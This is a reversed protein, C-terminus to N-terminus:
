TPSTSRAAASAPRCTTPAPRGPSSATESTPAACCSRARPRRTRRRSRGSRSATPRRAATALALVLGLAGVIDVLVRIARVCQLRPPRAVGWAAPADRLRALWCRTVPARLRRRTTRSTRGCGASPRPSRSARASPTTPWRTAASGASRSTARRRSARLVPRQRERGPTTAFSETLGLGAREADLLAFCRGSRRTTPAPRTASRRASAASASARDARRADLAEGPRTGSAGRASTCGSPSRRPSGTPSRRSWSRTTTTASPRRVPGRARRRRPDRGRVRRRPRRPRTEGPAVFDALSRNPRSDGHTPRSACCRSGRRRGDLVVDDGEARAPWFGYM